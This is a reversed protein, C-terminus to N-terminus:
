KERFRTVKQSLMAAHVNCLLARARTGVRPRQVSIHQSDRQKTGFYWAREDVREDSSHCLSEKMSEKMAEARNIPNDTHCCSTALSRLSLVTHRHVHGALDRM